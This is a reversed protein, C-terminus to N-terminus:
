ACATHDVKTTVGTRASRTLEAVVGTRASQTLDAVIQSKNFFFEYSIM